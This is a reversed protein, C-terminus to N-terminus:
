RVRGRVAQLHQKSDDSAPPSPQFDFDQDIVADASVPYYKQKTAHRHDDGLPTPKGM